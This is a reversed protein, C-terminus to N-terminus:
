EEFDHRAVSGEILDTVVFVFVIPGGMFFDVEEVDRAVDDDDVFTRGFDLCPGTSFCGVTFAAGAAAGSTSGSSCVPSPGNSGVLGAYWASRSAFSPTPTSQLMVAMSPKRPPRLSPIQNRLSLPPPSSTSRTSLSTRPWRRTGLRGVSPSFRALSRRSFEDSACSVLSAKGMPRKAQMSERHAFFCSSMTILLTDPTGSVSTIWHFSYLPWTSSSISMM